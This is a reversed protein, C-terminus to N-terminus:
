WLLRAGVLPAGVYRLSSICGHTDFNFVDAFLEAAEGSQLVDSERDRRPFQHRQQPRGDGALRGQQPNDGPQFSGVAAPDQEVALIRRLAVHAVALDAEDELM